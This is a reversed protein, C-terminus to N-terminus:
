GNNEHYIIDRNLALDKFSDAWRLLQAPAVTDVRQRLGCYQPGTLPFPFICKVCTDRRSCNRCDRAIRADHHHTEINQIIQSLPMGVKGVPKGNRCTKVNDHTDIIVTELGRCNPTGNAWRCLGDLYPYVPIDELEEGNERKRALQSLLQHLARADSERTDEAFADLPNYDPPNPSVATGTTVQHLPVGCQVGHALTRYHLLTVIGDSGGTQYYGHYYVTPALYHTLTERNLPHRQRIREPSSYIQILTGNIVLYERLWLVLEESLTESYLIVTKFCNDERPPYQTEDGPLAMVLSKLNFRDQSVGFIENSSKPALPISLPDYSHITNYHVRNKCPEVKVGHRPSFDFAPTGPRAQFINHGYLDIYPTLTRLFDMTQAADAPSETPMGLMISTFVTKIGVKKALKVYKELKHLFEKEKEYGPDAATDPPQVKGMKRLIRPVASELSFEISVVGAEKMLHLLEEDVKDCRTLCALSLKIKNQIIKKCIEMARRPLLTFTDDFIDVIGSEGPNLYKSIYDLEEVIRDPSHTVVTRNSLLPCVCFTCSQNCGRATVIGLKHSNAVGSLYPSPYKDLFCRNDRNNAYVNRDPNEYIDEGDRYSIGRVNDLPSRDPHFNARDLLTMLQLCTEEGENRVCIDVFPNTELITRAHLTTLLGGFIVPIHPAAEKLKRAILLCLFYNSNDVTFGVSRANIDLIRSACRNITLPERSVFHRADFGKEKLYAIIFAPGQCMRFFFRENEAATGVAPPYVFLIHPNSM